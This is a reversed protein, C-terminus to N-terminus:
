VDRGWLLPFKKEMQKKKRGEIRRRRRKKKLSVETNGDGIEGGLQFGIGQSKLRERFARAVRRKKRGRTGGLM